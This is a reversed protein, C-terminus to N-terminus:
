ECLQSQSNYYEKRYDCCRLDVTPDENSLIDVVKDVNDPTVCTYNETNRNISIGKSVNILERVGDM